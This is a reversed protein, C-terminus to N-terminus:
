LVRSLWVALVTGVSITSTWTQRFIVNPPQGDQAPPKLMRVVLQVAGSLLLVSVFAACALVAAQRLPFACGLWAGFATQMKFTGGGVGGLRWVVFLVGFTIGAAALSSGIGGELHAWRSGKGFALAALLGLALAPLSLANPVKGTRHDIAAALFMILCGVWIPWASLSFLTM